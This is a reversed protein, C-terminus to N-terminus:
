TCAGAGAGRPLGRPPLRGQGGAIWRSLFDAPEARLGVGRGGRAPIAQCGMDALRGPEVRRSGLEGLRGNQHVLLSYPVWSGPGGKEKCLFLGAFFLFLRPVMHKWANLCLPTCASPRCPPPRSVIGISMCSSSVPRPRQARRVVATFPYFPRAADEAPPSPPPAAGRSVPFISCEQM